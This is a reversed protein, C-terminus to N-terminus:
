DNDSGGPQVAHAAKDLASYLADRESQYDAASAAAWEESWASRAASRAASAASELECSNGGAAAEHARRGVELATVVRTIAEHVGPAHSAELAKRQTELMRDIRSIAIWHKVPGLNVGVPIRRPLETAFTMADANPLGEFIADCLLAMWEPLGLEVPWQSHDYNNLSCGIFCGKGGEWGTGKIIEDAASHADMRAILASKISPDNRFSLEM